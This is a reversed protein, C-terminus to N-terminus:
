ASMRAAIPSPLKRVRQRWIEDFSPGVRFAVIKRHALVSVFDIKEREDAGPYETSIWPM